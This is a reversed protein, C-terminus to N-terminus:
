HRTRRGLLGLCIIALRRTDDPFKGTAIQAYFEATEPKRLAILSYIAARAREGNRLNQAEKKLYDLAKANTEAFVALTMFGSIVVGTGQFPPFYMTILSPANQLMRRMDVEKIHDIVMQTIEDTVYKPRLYMFSAYITDATSEGLFQGEPKEARKLLDLLYEPAKKTDCWALGNLLAGIAGANAARPGAQKGIATLKDRFFDAAAEPDAEALALTEYYSFTFVNGQNELFRLVADKLEGYTRPRMMGVPKGALRDNALAVADKQDAYDKVVKEYAARAEDKKGQAELCVGIHALALACYKKDDPFRETVKKYVELAGAYDRQSNELFYGHEYMAQASAEWAEAAHAASVSLALLAAALVATVFFRKADM